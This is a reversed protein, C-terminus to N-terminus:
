AQYRCAAVAADIKAQDIGRAAAEARAHEAADRWRDEARKALQEELQERGDPPLLEILKLIHEVSVTSM